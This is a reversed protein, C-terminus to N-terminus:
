CWKDNFGDAILVSSQSKGIFFNDGSYTFRLGDDVPALIINLFIKYEAPSDVSEGQVRRMVIFCFCVTLQLTHNLAVKKNLM